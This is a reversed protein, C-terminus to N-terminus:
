TQHIILPFTIFCMFHLEEHSSVKGGLAYLVSTGVASTRKLPLSRAEFRMSCQPWLQQPIVSGHGIFVLM